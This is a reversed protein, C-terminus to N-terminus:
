IRARVASRTVEVIGATSHGSANVPWRASIVYTAHDGQRCSSSLPERSPVARTQDHSPHGPAGRDRTSAGCALETAM